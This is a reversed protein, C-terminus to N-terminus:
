DPIRSVYGAPHCHPQRLSHASKSHYTPHPPVHVARLTHGCPVATTRRRGLTRFCRTFVCISWATDARVWSSERLSMSSPREQALTLHGSIFGAGVRSQGFASSSHLHGPPRGHRSTGSPSSTSSPQSTRVCPNWMSRPPSIPHSSLLNGATQLPVQLLRCPLRLKMRSRMWTSRTNCPRKLVRRARTRHRSRGSRRRMRRRAKVGTAEVEPDHRDDEFWVGVWCAKEAQRSDTWRRTIVAGESAWM